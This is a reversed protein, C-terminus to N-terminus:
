EGRRVIMRAKSIGRSFFQHNGYDHCVPRGGLMGWNDRKLDAMFNPVRKLSAWQEDTMPVTRAQILATGFADIELCPAFWKAWKAASQVDQWITWEHQNSFSLGDVEVKVVRADDLAYVVRYCGRGLEKGIVAQLICDKVRPGFDRPDTV